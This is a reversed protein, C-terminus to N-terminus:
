LRYASDFVGRVTIGLEYTYGAEPDAKLGAEDLGESASTVLLRDAQKGIFAPCTTMNAPLKYIATREGNPSYRHVEGVGWHANWISGEADCVSGDIGGQQGAEDVFIQPEGLPLGTAPDLMVRFYRNEMTDVFYGVSGDPSFCIGNPISIKPFLETVKGQAVHYITGAGKRGEQGKKMTGFWLAGCPHVRGDNSRMDPRDQEIPTALALAGSRFDRIYLGHESVVLQQDGDIRAFVSSMAPLSHVTKKDTSLSLEHLEAGLIDFWYATDTAPDYTPGEGLLINSPDLVKGNFPIAASM